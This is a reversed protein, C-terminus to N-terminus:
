KRSPVDFIGKVQSQLMFQQKNKDVVM